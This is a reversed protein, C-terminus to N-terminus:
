PRSPPRRQVAELVKFRGSDVVTRRSGFVRELEREYPLTRNAVLLLRGGPDLVQAAEEIFRLPLGLDTSKGVHFPPNTVVLDFRDQAVASTVDSPVVRFLPVGSSLMTRTASRVAEADADVLTIVGSGALRGAVAGLVGAGCGLDLVRAAPAVELARVMLASAEDLHEWSFVGPRSFMTLPSGRLEVTEEHFQSRDHYPAVLAEIAALDPEVPQVSALVRHGGGHAVIRVAGFLAEMVAAAPKIGEGNGGVVVCRGGARLLRAADHLLLHFPMREPPLRIVVTDALSEDTEPQAGHGHLVRVNGVGLTTVDHELACVDPWRRHTALVITDGVDRAAALVAASGEPHFFVVRDGPQHRVHQLLLRTVASEHASTRM